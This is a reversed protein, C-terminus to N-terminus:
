RDPAGAYARHERKYEALEADARGTEGAARLRDIEALWTKADRRYDPKAAPAPAAAATPSYGAAENNSTSERPPQATGALKEVRRARAESPAAIVTEAAADRETRAGGAGLDVVVAGSDDAQAAVAPAQQETPASADSRAMEPAAPPAAAPYEVQRSINQVTVEPTKVVERTGVRLFITFGLVLTAALAVPMGWSPARFVRQPREGEIADRARRLVLRDIEAPPELEDDRRFLPRRKRLFDDFEDDPSTM